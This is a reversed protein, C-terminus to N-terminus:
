TSIVYQGGSYSNTSQYTYMGTCDVNVIEDGCTEKDLFAKCYGINLENGNCQVTGILVTSENRPASSSKGQTNSCYSFLLM